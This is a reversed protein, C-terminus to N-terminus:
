KLGSQGHRRRDYESLHRNFEESLARLRERRAEADASRQRKRERADLILFYIGLATWALVLGALFWGTWVPMGQEM